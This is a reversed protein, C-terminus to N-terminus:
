KKRDQRGSRGNSKRAKHRAKRKAKRRVKRALKVCVGRKGLKYGHRCKPQQGPMSEPFSIPPIPLLGSEFKSPPLECGTTTFTQAAGYAAELGSAIKIRYAYTMCPQLGTVTVAKEVFGVGAGASGSLVLGYQTAAGSYLGLEFAYAAAEGDPDVAGAITAGTASVASASGTAARLVPAPQTTFTGEPIEAGGNENQAGEHKENVAFLRYRYVTVPQLGNAEGTASVKGYVSSEQAPTEAFGACEDVAVRHGLEQEAETCAADPAYQFEYSTKANEPNLEGFVTASTAHVFSVRPEGVIRPAATPTTSMTRTGSLPDEPAQVDHDRGALRYYFPSNPHLGSIPAAVPLPTSGCASCLM